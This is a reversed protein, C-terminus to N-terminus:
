AAAEAGERGTRRPPAIAEAARSPVTAPMVAATAVEIRRKLGTAAAGTAVTAPAIEVVIEQVIEQVIAAATERVIVSTAPAIV